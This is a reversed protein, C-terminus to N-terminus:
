IIKAIEEFNKSWVKTREESPYETFAREEGALCIVSNWGGRPDAVIVEKKINIPVRYSFDKTTGDPFAVCAGLEFYGSRDEVNELLKLLKELPLAREIFQMYPGPFGLYNIFLGHDERITIMGTEKAAEIASYKAIELSTDAQIEFYERNAPVVEVDLGSFELQAAAIKGKNQTLLM